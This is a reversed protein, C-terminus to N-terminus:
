LWTRKPREEWLGEAACGMPRRRRRTREDADMGHRVSQRPGARNMVATRQQRLVFREELVGLEDLQDDAEADAQADEVRQQGLPQRQCPASVARSASHLWRTAYCGCARLRARAAVRLM